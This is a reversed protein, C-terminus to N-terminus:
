ESKNTTQGVSYETHQHLSHVDQLELTFYETFTQRPGKDTTCQLEVTEQNKDQTLEDFLFGM